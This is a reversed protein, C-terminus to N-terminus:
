LWQASRDKIYIRFSHKLRFLLTSFNKYFNVKNRKLLNLQKKAFALRQIHDGPLLRQVRHMKYSKLKKIKLAKGVSGISTNTEEALRRVSITDDAEVLEAVRNIFMPTVVPCIRSGPACTSLTVQGKEEFNKLWRRIAKREPAEKNYTLTCHERTM